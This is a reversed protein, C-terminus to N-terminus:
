LEKCKMITISVKLSVFLCILAFILAILILVSMNLTSLTNFVNILDINFLSKAGKVMIIGIVGLAGFTGIMAIRGKEGGYKLQFPIMVAQMLLMVPLIALGSILSNPVSITGKFGSIMFAALMALIWTGGGLLLGFCYKEVAYGGRSIPLTFLFANGNDFEDYSITSLTFLSMVLSLFGVMFLSDESIISIGVAVVLIVFFFNKQVGLLRFDKILLGKM